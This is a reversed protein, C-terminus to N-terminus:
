RFFWGDFIFGERTPNDPITITTKGDYKVSNVISGGNSDFLIEFGASKNTCGFLLFVVILITLVSIVRLKNVM